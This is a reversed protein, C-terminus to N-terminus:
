FNDWGFISRLVIGGVLIKRQGEKVNAADLVFGVKEGRYGM